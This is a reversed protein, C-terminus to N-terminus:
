KNRKDKGTGEEYTEENVVTTREPHKKPGASRRTEWTHRPKVVELHRPVIPIAPCERTESKYGMCARRAKALQWLLGEREMGKQGYRNSSKKRLTQDGQQRLSTETSRDILQEEKQARKSAFNEKNEM